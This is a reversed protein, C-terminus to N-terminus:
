ASAARALITFAEEEIEIAREPDELDRAFATFANVVGGSSTDGGRTFYDLVGLRETETYGLDEGISDVVEHPRDLLKSGQEDLEAAVGVLYDESLWATVADAAQGQILNLNARQTNASWEIQGEGMRGGLHVRRVADATRTMGNSCVLITIQPALSFAGGGTESNSMVIGASIAEPPGFYNPAGNSPRYRALFEPALARVEPADIKLRLRNETLDGSLRLTSPEIGAHRVGELVATVADLHDIVQDRDSLFARAIGHTVGTELFGRVFWNRNSQEIWHNVNEDLLAMGLEGDELMRKYYRGPIGLTQAIQNDTGATPSLTVDGFGVGDVDLTTTGDVIRLHGGEFSLHTSPVVVDYKTEHQRELLPILDNLEANRAIDTTATM